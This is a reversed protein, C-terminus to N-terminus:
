CKKTVPCGHKKINSELNYFVPHVLFTPLKNSFMVMLNELKQRSSLNKQAEKSFNNLNSTFFFNKLM